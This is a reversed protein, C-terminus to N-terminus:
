NTVNEGEQQIQKAFRMVHKWGGGFKTRERNLCIFTSPTKGTLMRELQAANAEIAALLYYLAYVEPPAPNGYPGSPLNVSAALSGVCDRLEKLAEQSLPAKRYKIVWTNIKRLADDAWDGRFYKGHLKYQEAFLNGIMLASQKLNGRIEWHPSEPCNRFKERKEEEFRKWVQGINEIM